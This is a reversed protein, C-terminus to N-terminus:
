CSVVVSKVNFHFILIVVLLFEFTTLLSLCSFIYIYHRGIVHRCFYLEHDARVYLEFVCALYQKHVDDLKEKIDEPIKIDNSNFSPHRLWVCEPKCHCYM